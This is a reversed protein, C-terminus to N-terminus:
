GKDLLFGRLEKLLRDASLFTVLTLFYLTKLITSLNYEEFMAVNFEDYQIVVTLCLLLSYVIIRRVQLAEENLYKLYVWIVLIIPFGMFHYFYFSDYEISLIFIIMIWILLVFLLTYLSIIQSFIKKVKIWFWKKKKIVEELLSTGSPM